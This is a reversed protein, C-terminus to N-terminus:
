YRMTSHANKLEFRAVRGRAVLFLGDALEEFGQPGAILVLAQQTDRAAAFGEGHRVDDRRLVAGHEDKRVVLGQGGLEVRLELREERVIGHLVEDRIEVIVLRLGVNGARIGVDFFVAGDVVFDVAQAQVGHAGQKQPAIDDHHGGDGADVAQARRLIVALQGQAHAHPLLQVAILHEGPEGLQEELPVVVVELAAPETHAAIHHVDVRCLAVALHHADLEEAVFDVGDGQHIRARSAYALAHRAVEEEGDLLVDRGRLFPLAGDAGDPPLQRLADSPQLRLVLEDLGLPELHARFVVQLEDVLDAEALADLVVAAVQGATRRTGRRGGQLVVERRVVQGDDIFRVSGDRLDAAHIFAVARALLYEDVVAEAQGARQIVAGQAEILEHSALGLQDVHTGGGPSKFIHVAYRALFAVCGDELRPPAIGVAAACLGASGDGVGRLTELPDEEM